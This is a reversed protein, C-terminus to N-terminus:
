PKVEPEIAARIDNPLEMENNYRRMLDPYLARSSYNASATASLEEIAEEMLAVPVVVWGAARIARIAAVAIDDSGRLYIIGGAIRGILEAEDKAPEAM